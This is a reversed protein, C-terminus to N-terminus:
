QSSLAPLELSQYLAMLYVSRIGALGVGPKTSASGSITTGYLAQIAMSAFRSLEAAKRSTGDVAM